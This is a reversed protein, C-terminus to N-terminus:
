RVAISLRFVGYTDNRVWTNSYVLDVKQDETRRREAESDTGKPPMRKTM